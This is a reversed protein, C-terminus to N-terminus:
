RKFQISVTMEVSIPQGDLRSPEYRWQKLADIAAQRLLMPGSIARVNLVNGKDDITTDLVVTGQVSATKAIDPYDPVVSHMLKPPRIQGGVRVVGAPASTVPAVGAPSLPVPGSPASVGDLAGNASAPPTADISPAAVPSPATEHKTSVPHANLAGFMDSVVSPVQQKPASTESSRGGNVLISDTARVVPAPAAAPLATHAFESTQTAPTQQAPALVPNSNLNAQAPQTSSASAARAVSSQSPSTRFYLTWTGVAAFIVAAAAAVLLWNRGPKPAEHPNEAGAIEDLSSSAAQSHRAHVASEYDHSSEVSYTPAPVPSQKLPPEHTAARDHTEIARQKKDPGHFPIVHGGSTASAAPQVDEHSGLGVFHSPAPSRPQVDRDAHRSTITTSDASDLHEAARANVPHAPYTPAASPINNLSAGIQLDPRAAASSPISADPFVTKKATESSDSPFYVGWYGPQRNTFEIEVYSKGTAYSRVKIVRCIADQGSKLNTLVVMQGPSVATSMRLVGGQPFVIMTVAQEEFQRTLPTTGRVVETVRSGHVKVPLELSVADARLHGADADAQSAQESGSETQLNKSELTEKLPTM